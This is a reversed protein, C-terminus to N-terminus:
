AGSAAERALSRWQAPTMGVHRKFGRQFAADSQYGVFEGIEAVSDNSQALMRGALTMRIDTLVDAASRGIAEDFHRAFTARSMHCLEALEPLTWSKGPAEFMADIAPQLRPRQALALLGRPPADGASAYRLTLGFLAGSLHNVLSESGPAAEYAEDRLLAILRVLREPAETRDRASHVVLRAPLNERLLRQPVAPLLFRGCLVDAIAGDGVNTEISVGNEMRKAVAAPAAGSGDHLVHASGSPFLVIDGAHLAVPAGHADEVIARGALLVHYRIERAKAAPDDIRWPAGFHCRVDLRGAVPMLALLRSLLDM